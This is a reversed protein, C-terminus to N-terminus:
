QLLIMAENCKCFLYQAKNKLTPYYVNELQRLISVCETRWNACQHYSKTNSKLGAEISAIILILHEYQTNLKNQMREAYSKKKPPAM